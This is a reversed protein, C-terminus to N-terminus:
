QLKKKWAAYQQRIEAERDASVPEIDMSLGMTGTGFSYEYIGNDNMVVIRKPNGELSLNHLFLNRDEGIEWGEFYLIFYSGRMGKEYAKGNEVVEFTFISHPNMLLSTRRVGDASTKADQDERGLVKERITLAKTYCQLAKAYDNQSYYADGINNYSTAVDPHVKGFAKEQITLAKTFYELAKPYNNQGYYVCGIGLYNIAVEPHEPGLLRKQIALAENYYVLAQTYSKQDNYANGINIYTVTVDRHEVGLVKEKIALSRQYYEIARTCDGLYYYANGIFNYSSAINPHGSGFVKERIALAKNYYELARSYDGQTAHFSGIGDYTEAMGPDDKGLVKGQIMLAKHFYEIAKPFNGQLGCVDGLGVYSKAVDPHDEGLIKEQVALAKTYFDLAKVYSGQAAYFAGVSVYSEAVDPSEEGFVIRRINLAKIFYNIAKPYDSQDLYTGGICNYMKATEVSEAGNKGIRIELAESYFMRAEEYRAVKRLFDAYGVIYDDNTSDLDVRKKLYVLVSDNVYDLRFGEAIDKYRQAMFDRLALKERKEKRADELELEKARIVSDSKALEAVLKNAIYADRRSLLGKNFAVMEKGKGSKRMEINIQQISDMTKYDIRALKDAEELIVKDSEYYRQSFQRLEQEISDREQLLKKYKLDSEKLRALENDKEDIRTRYNAIEAEKERRINTEIRTREARLENNDALVVEVTAKPNLAYQKVKLEGVAPSILTYGPKYIDSFVFTENINASIKLTFNGEPDSREETEVKIRADEVPIDASKRTYSIKRVHGNQMVVQGHLTLPFALAILLAKKM